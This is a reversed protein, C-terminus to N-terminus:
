YLSFLFVPLRGTKKDAKELHKEESQLMDKKITLIVRFPVQYLLFHRSM